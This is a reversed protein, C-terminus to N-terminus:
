RFNIPLSNRRFESWCFYVSQIIITDSSDMAKMKALFL